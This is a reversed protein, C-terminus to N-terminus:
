ENTNEEQLTDPESPTVLIFFQRTDEDTWWDRMISSLSAYLAQNPILLEDAALLYAAFHSIPNCALWAAAEDTSQPSLRFCLRRFAFVTLMYKEWLAKANPCGSCFLLKNYKEELALINLIRLWRHTKGIYKYALYGDEKEIYPILAPLAAYDEAALATNIATLLHNWAAETAKRDLEQQRFFNENEELFERSFQLPMEVPKSKAENKM